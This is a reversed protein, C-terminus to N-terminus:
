HAHRVPGPWTWGVSLRDRGPIVAVGLLGGGGGLYGGGGGLFGGGGLTSGGGLTGGGLFGGGGLSGGGVFSGGGSNAASDPGITTAALGV